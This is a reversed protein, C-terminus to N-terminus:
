ANHDNSAKKMVMDDDKDGNGVDGSEGDDGKRKVILVMPMVAVTMKTMM